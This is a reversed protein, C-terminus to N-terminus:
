YGLIYQLPKHYEVRELVWQHLMRKRFQRWAPGRRPFLIDSKVEATEVM